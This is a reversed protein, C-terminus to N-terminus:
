SDDALLTNVADLLANPSFPKQLGSERQEAGDASAAPSPYGSMFLARLGPVRERLQTVMRRGSMGPMVVDTLVLDIADGHRASVALAEEPHEADLVTYGRERLIRGVMQKVGPNDEVLLITGSGPNTPRDSRRETAMADGDVRPLYIEFRAGKGIESHVEVHGGSQQTIGYVTALGLGTGKGIEKTTFFPEFIHKQTEADMGVGTDSVSLMVFETAGDTRGDEIVVNSTQIKLRGGTPMADRANVALNLIVQDVQNADARVSGLNADLATEIRIHEGLVRRLIKELASVSDNINLVKPQVVQRRSFTLLQRILNEARRTAGLIEAMDERKPDEPPLAQLVLEGYGGIVALLNNLDHSIGGALQGIAEM